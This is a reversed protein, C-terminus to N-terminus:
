LTWPKRMPRSMMKQAKENGIITEKNPDWTIEKGTRIAIDSLQSMLDSQIASNLDSIPQKRMLVADIFNHLQNSSKILRIKGPEKALSYLSEPYVKWGGRTVAVWGQTGEFLTGHYFNPVENIFPIRDETQTFRATANDIYRLLLGNEYTARVDWHTITDFLGPYSVSGTGKYKVPVGMGAQDAWWQLQDLPHAGWGAIFGLAYDYIHFIGNRQGRALCRDYSFPAEPAPGLWLDYDFGEPVPMKKKSGGFEGQPCWVNVSKIDGIHGNLVLEIGMRVQNMSRNQTGYQFIRKHKRVIERAALDQEVTLGLPKETYMDKGARAAALSIPMHWHDSTAIHVADVDNLDLLERFDNYDPCNDFRAKRELRREKVPDCVAVVQSKSYNKYDISVGSRDGCGILGINVRDSPAAKGNKGLATGPIIMPVAMTTSVLTTYQIMKRRSITTSM